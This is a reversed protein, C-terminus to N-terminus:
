PVHLVEGPQLTGGGIQSELLYELPRPDKTGSFRVAVAWITDGPRAVYTTTACNSGWPASAGPPCPSTGAHSPSASAILRSAVSSALAGAGAALALLLLRRWLCARAGPRGPLAPATPAGGRAQDASPVAAHGGTTPRSTGKAHDSAVM